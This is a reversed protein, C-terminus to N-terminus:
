RSSERTIGQAHLAATLDGYLICNDLSARLLPKPRYAMGLGAAQLMPLDNAGDGIALTESLDIDLQRAYHQLLTKKANKDLIPEAVKGTLKGGEIGLVNGHHHHFGARAAIKETFFTFGGSVLVCNAGGGKMGAALEAAGPSLELKELTRLLLSEDLGKLMAVREKLATEFDLEGRMARATIAAIKDGIGALVAIEDLTEGTVITADMDALLLKKRRGKAPTVFLDIRSEELIGWLAEIDKRDPRRAVPIDAAIQPAPWAPIGAIELGNAVIYNTIDAVHAPTLPTGSSVLTLVFSM